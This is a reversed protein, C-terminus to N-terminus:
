DGGGWGVPRDSWTSISAHGFGGGNENAELRQDPFAVWSNGDWFLLTLTLPSVDDIDDQTYEVALELPPDFEYVTQVSGQGLDQIVKFDLVVRACNNEELDCPPPEADIVEKVAMPMPTEQWPVTVRVLGGVPRFEEVLPEFPTLELTQEIIMPTETPQPPPEPEPSTACETIVLGITILSALWLLRIWGGPPLVKLDGLFEKTKRMNAMRRERDKV